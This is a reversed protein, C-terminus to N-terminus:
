YEVLGVKKMEDLVIILPEVVRNFEINANQSIDNAMDEVTHEGDCMAWVYYALPSLEYVEEESLSVYFKDQEVGIFDGKHMPKLDKIADYKEQTEKSLEYKHEHGESSSLDVVEGEGGRSGGELLGLHDGGV